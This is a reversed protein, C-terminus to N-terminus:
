PGTSAQVLGGPPVVETWVVVADGDPNVAVQPSNAQQGPDSLYKVKSLAGNASRTRAQIFGRSSSVRAWTFVADGGTDVAVQPDGLGHGGDWLTQVPSLTGTRSRARALNLWTFVADGDADVAVVSPTGNHDPPLSLDQVASLTGAASRARTQRLYDTGNYFTWTFVAEGEGDVAVDPAYADHGPDSLDQVASWPGAVPRARTQVRHFGLRDVRNWTFMADGGPDVAVRPGGANRGNGSVMKVASLTGDASRTRAQIRSNTGDSGQWAFVADGGADIAVQPSGNQGPDSLDQV